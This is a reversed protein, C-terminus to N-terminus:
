FEEISGANLKVEAIAVGNMPQDGAYSDVIKVEVTGWAGGTYGVLCPLLVWQLQGPKDELVETVTTQNATIEVTKPRAFAKPGSQIGLSALGFGPAKLSFTGGGGQAAWFTKPDGDIADMGVHPSVETDFPTVFTMTEAPFERMHVRVESVAIQPFDKGPFTDVVTIKVRGGSVEGGVKTDPLDVIQWGQKDEFNVTTEAVLKAAGAGSDFLEVKATKLRAYDSFSQDDKNWGVVVALKDITGAPVDIAIWQGVNNQEPDVQWCTDLKSDLASAANWYNQGLRTEKKFSSAEYGASAVAPVLALISMLALPRM